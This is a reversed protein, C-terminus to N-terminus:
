NCLSTGYILYISEDDTTEGKIYNVHSVKMEKESHINQNKNTEIFASVNQQYNEVDFVVVMVGCKHKLEKWEGGLKLIEIVVVCVVVVRFWINEGKKWNKSSPM